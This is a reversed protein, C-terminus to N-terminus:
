RYRGHPGTPPNGSHSACPVTSISTPSRHQATARWAPPVDRVRNVDPVPCNGVSIIQRRSASRPHGGSRITRKTDFKRATPHDTRGQARCYLDTDRDAPGGVRRPAHAFIFIHPSPAAVAARQQALGCSMADQRSSSIFMRELCSRDASGTVISNSRAPASLVRSTTPWLKLLSAVLAQQNPKGDTPREQFHPLHAQLSNSCEKGLPKTVPPSAM